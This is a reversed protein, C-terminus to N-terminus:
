KKDKSKHHEFETDVSVLTVWRHWHPHGEHLLCGPNTYVEGAKLDWRDDIEQNNWERVRQIEAQSFPQPHNRGM